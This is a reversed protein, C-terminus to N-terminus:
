GDTAGNGLAFGLIRDHLLPRRAACLQRAQRDARTQSHRAVVGRLAQRHPLRPVDPDAVKVLPNDVQFYFIHRIGKKRLRALLGSSALATLTGGHGDPSLFLRGPAEMLLKGTALDLAPMTGQRFFHVEEKPLGFYRNEAFFAETAAHTAQSTMVLLPVAAGYRRRLALVKEAHIQFLSKNSVPGIPFLGKPHDFGLRTGQGGAVVLVAVEGARLAEEGLRPCLASQGAFRGPGSARTPDRRDVAAHLRSGTACLTPGVTGPRASRNDWLSVGNMTRCAIGGACFMIRAPPRLRKLLDDPVASM